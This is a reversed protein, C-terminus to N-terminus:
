PATEVGLCSVRIEAEYLGFRPRFPDCQYGPGARRSGLIFFKCCGHPLLDNLKFIKGTLEKFDFIQVLTV